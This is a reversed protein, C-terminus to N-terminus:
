FRKYKKKIRTLMPCVENYVIIYESMQRCQLAEPISGWLSTNECETGDHPTAYSEQLPKSLTAIAQDAVQKSAHSCRRHIFAPKFNDSLNLM